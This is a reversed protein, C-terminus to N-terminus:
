NRKIKLPGITGGEVFEAKAVSLRRDDKGRAVMDAWRVIRRVVQGHDWRCHAVSPTCYAFDSTEQLCVLSVDQPVRIGRQGCFQLAAFFHPPEEIMLATPPTHGFLSELLGHFGQPSDEWEPMTYPGTQIGHSELEEFLTRWLPGPPTQRRGRFALFVIKRHGLSRLRRFATLVAQHDPVVAAVPLGHPAGFISFTRFKEAAFWQLVEHAAAAVIWADVKTKKVMRAIRRVDMDLEVLTKETFFDTHGLDSLSHLVEIIFPQNKAPPDYALFGIRMAPPAAKEPLVIQRRRGVGQPLLLGEQELLALAAEITNHGVGLNRSLRDSGPMLGAWNGRFLEDRLHAAVQEAATLVRLSSM